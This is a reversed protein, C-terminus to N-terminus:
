HSPLYVFLYYLNPTFRMNLRNRKNGNTGNLKTENRKKEIRKTEIRKTEIWKVTENRVQCHCMFIAINNMVKKGFTAEKGSYNQSTEICNNCRISVGETM